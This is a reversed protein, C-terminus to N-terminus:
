FSYNADPFLFMYCYASGLVGLSLHFTKTKRKKKKTKWVPNRQTATATRSSVRYVLSGEFEFGGAEAERTSPNFAHGVMGPEKKKKKLVLLLPV